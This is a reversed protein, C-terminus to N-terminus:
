LKTGAPRNMTQRCASQTQQLNLVVGLLYSILTILVLKLDNIVWFLRVTFL